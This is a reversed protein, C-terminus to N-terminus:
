KVSVRTDGLLQVLIFLLHLYHWMKEQCDDDEGDEDPHVPIISSLHMAMVSCVM